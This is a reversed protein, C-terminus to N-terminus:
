SSYLLEPISAALAELHQLSELANYHYLLKLNQNVLRLGLYGAANWKYEIAM